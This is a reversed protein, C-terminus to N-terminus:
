RDRWMAIRLRLLGWVTRPVRGWISSRAQRTEIVTAPVEEIRYGAREARIVLETDFMDKTSIVSPGVDAVVRRRVAKMGHTDTVEVRFLAHLLLNFVRTALRRMTGRTDSAGPARKSALVIDADSGIARAVFPGSFYDIDFNVVWDGGADLFGRRMAAGYDATDISVVRVPPRSAAIDTAIAATGDTSGNEVLTVDFTADVGTLQELLAPVASPLTSAENHIPVVVSVHM